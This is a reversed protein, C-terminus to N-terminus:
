APDDLAGSLLKTVREIEQTLAARRAELHPVTVAGIARCFGLLTKGLELTTAHGQIAVRQAGVQAYFYYAVPQEPKLKRLPKM